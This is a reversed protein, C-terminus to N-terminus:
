CSPYLPCPLALSLISSEVKFCDYFTTAGACAPTWIIKLQSLM